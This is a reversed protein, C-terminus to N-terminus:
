VTMEYDDEVPRVRVALVPSGDKEEIRGLDALDTHLEIIGDLRELTQRLGALASSPIPGMKLMRDM